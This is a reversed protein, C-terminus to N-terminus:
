ASKCIYNLTGSRIIQEFSAKVCIVAPGRNRAEAKACNSCPGTKNDEPMRCQLTSNSDNV